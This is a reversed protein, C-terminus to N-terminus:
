VRVATVTLFECGTLDPEAPLAPDVDARRGAAAMAMADMGAAVAARDHFVIETFGVAKLAGRLGKKSPIAFHRPAEFGRWFRGHRAIGEAQANPMELYVRGSPRLWQHFDRLLDVPQAVHELVHNATVMDFSGALDMEALKASSHVKLGRAAAVALASDDFDVGVVEHGLEKARIAFDGNGCGFDLIRSRQSPLFRYLADISLRREPLQKVVKEGVVDLLLSAGGFRRRAYSRTAHRWAARLLGGGAAADDDGAHTYYNSYALKLREAVPRRVLVLSNCQRCRDFVFQGPVATFFWDEVGDIFVTLRADGCFLCSAQIEFWDDRWGVADGRSPHAIAHQGDEPPLTTM